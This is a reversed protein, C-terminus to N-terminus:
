RVAHNMVYESLRQTARDVAEWNRQQEANALNLAITRLETDM